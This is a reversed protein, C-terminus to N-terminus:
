PEPKEGGKIWYQLLEELKLIDLPKTLYDDMGSDLCKERDGKMANATMAIIIIKQNDEGALGLRINQTTQYGDMVPMQCDMLIAKYPPNQKLMNIAIEGNEATDISYGFEELISKAVEQNILNDEVLLLKNTDAKLAQLSSQTVLGQTAEFAKGHDIIIAMAKHLDMNIVPKSLIGSLGQAKIASPPMDLVVSTMLLFYTQEFQLDDRLRKLLSLGDEEPMQMDLIVLRYKDHNDKLMDYAINPLAAYDVQAGWSTLLGGIVERNTQNDDVVLICTDNLSIHPVEVQDVQKSAPLNVTFWFRSGKGETSEIGIEGGMLHCLQKSISLGLGTGGYQRTTSGDVQTFKTFLKKTKEKPIGIGTDTIEFRIHQEDDASVILHIEGQSTFKLANGCLNTIIQRIRSPDGSVIKPLNEDLQVIYELNKEHVRYAYTESFEGIMKSLDFDITELELKGAEIKSFDLIDNILVLLSEASNHALQAYRQQQPNQDTRVLLNLMGLVGNMPTRIEHSMNALFESKAINAQEAAITLVEAQAVADHLNQEDRKKHSIDTQVEIYESVMGKEDKIPQIDIAAWYQRGSKNYNLIDVHVDHGKAMEEKIYEVTDPATNKGTLLISLDKGTVEQAEYGTIRTFAANVWKIYGDPDSIIVANNTSSAVLALQKLQAEKLKKDTQDWNVGIIREVEGETNLSMSAHANIHRIGKQPHIIRFDADFDCKLKIADNLKQTTSDLDDPHVREAWDALSQNFTAPDSGFISFMEENWHLKELEIDYDWVGMNVSQTAIKLRHNSANIQQRYEELKNEAQKRKSIDRVFAMYGILHNKKDRIAGGVTESLFVSGDKRRYCIELVPHDAPSRPNYKIAGANEYAQTNEYLFRTSKGIAEEDLYGFTKCFAPNVIKIIRQPTTIIMAEPADNIIEELLSKQEISDEQAQYLPTVNLVSAIVYCTQDLEFGCLSVQAKINTGASDTLNLVLIERQSSNPTPNKSSKLYHEYAEFFDSGLMSSIKKGLLQPETFKLLSKIENNVLVIRGEEDIEILGVPANILISEMRKKIAGNALEFGNREILRLKLQQIGRAIEGLEDKSDKHPIPEALKGASLGLLSNKLQNITLIFGSVLRWAIWSAIILVLALVMSTSLLWDDKQTQFNEIIKEDYAIVAQSIEELLELLIDLKNVITEDINKKLALKAQHVNMHLLAQQHLQNATDQSISPVKKLASLRDEFRVLLAQSPRSEHQNLYHVLEVHSRSLNFGLQSLAAFQNPTKLGQQILQQQLQNGLANIEAFSLTKVTIVPTAQQILATFEQNIEEALIEIRGILEIFVIARDSMGYISDEDSHINHIMFNAIGQVQNLYSSFRRRLNDVPTTLTQSTLHQANLIHGEIGQSALVLSEILQTNQQISKTVNHGLRQYVLASLLASALLIAFAFYIKQKITLTLAM